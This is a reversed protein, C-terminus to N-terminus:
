QLGTGAYLTLMSWVVLAIFMAAVIFGALLKAGGEKWLGTKKRVALQVGGSVIFLIGAACGAQGVYPPLSWWTGPVGNTVVERTRVMIEFDGIWAMLGLLVGIVIFGALLYAGGDRWPGKKNRVVLQVAGSLILLIGAISGAKWVELMILWTTM